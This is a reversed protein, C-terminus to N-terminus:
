STQTSLYSPYLLTYVEAAARAQGDARFSVARQGSGGPVKPLSADPWGVAAPEAKGEDVVVIEEKSAGQHHKEGDDQVKQADM